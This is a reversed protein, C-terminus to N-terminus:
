KINDKTISNITIDKFLRTSYLKNNIYEERKVIVFDKADIWYKVSSYKARELSALVYDIKYKAESPIDGLKYSPKKPKLNEPFKIELLYADKKECKEKKVSSTGNSSLYNMVILDATWNMVLFDGTNEKEISRTFDLPIFGLGLIKVKFNKPDEDPRYIFVANKLVDPIYDSSLIKMKISYPKVFSVEYNGEKYEPKDSVKNDEKNGYKDELDGYNKHTEKQFEKNFTDYEGQYNTYTYSNIKKYCEQIRNLLESPNKIEEASSKITNILLISFILILIFHKM